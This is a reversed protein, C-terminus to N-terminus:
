RHLRAVDSKEWRTWDSWHDSNGSRVRFSVLQYVEESGRRDLNPVRDYSHITVSDDRPDFSRWFTSKGLFDDNRGRDDEFRLQRIEVTKNGNCDVYIRFDVRVKSRDKNDHKIPKLPDVTCGRESTSAFAPGAAAVPGGILGLAVAPILAIRAARSRTKRPPKTISM